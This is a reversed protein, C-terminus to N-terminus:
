LVRSSRAGLGACRRHSVVLRPRFEHVLAVCASGSLLRVCAEQLLDRTHERGPREPGVRQEAVPMSLREGTPRPRAAEAVMRVLRAEELDLRTNAEKGAAAPVFVPGRAGGQDEYVAQTPAGFGRVHEAGSAQCVPRTCVHHAEVLAVAATRLM